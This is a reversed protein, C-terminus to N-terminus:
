EDSVKIVLKGRVRGTKLKQFAEPVNELTYVDEIVAKVKGEAMFKGITAYDVAKSSASLFEYKRQGGGLFTPILFISLLGLVASTSFTMGVAVYKATPKLYHHCQWYVERQVGVNDVILDFQKGNRKLTEVIGQTKYDIVEDAGLSKCLEVNPGSCSTVVYCGLAKAIQIGFTGTGGSGGNIFVKDGSKVNPAICQYATLGAVGVSGADKLSVGEPLAVCGEREAVVYEALAGFQPPELKGFVLQGPQLDSRTTAVVKGSFDMSPSAPKSIAFQGVIPMEPLKYDVPNLAAYKVNVLTQDKGLSNAAKPLSANSNVKLNKELGGSATTWQSARMSTPIATAM